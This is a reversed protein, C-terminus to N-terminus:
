PNERIIHSYHKEVPSDDGEVQFDTTTINLINKNTRRTEKYVIERGYVDEKCKYVEYIVGSENFSCSRNKEHEYIVQKALEETQFVGITYGESGYGTKFLVVFLPRSQM